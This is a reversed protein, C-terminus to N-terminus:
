WFRKGEDLFISQFIWTLLLLCVVIRILTALLGKRKVPDATM